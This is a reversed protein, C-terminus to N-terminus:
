YYHCFLSLFYYYAFILLIFPRMAGDPDRQAMYGAAAIACVRAYSAPRAMDDSGCRGATGSCAAAARCRCRWPAANDYCTIRQRSRTIQAAVMRFGSAAYGIQRRPAIMAATHRAMRTCGRSGGRRRRRYRTRAHYACAAPCACCQKHGGAVACLTARCRACPAMHVYWCMGACRM